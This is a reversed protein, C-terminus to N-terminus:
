YIYSLRLAKKYYHCGDNNIMISTLAALHYEKDCIMVFVKKLIGTGSYIFTKYKAFHKLRPWFGQYGPKLFQLNACCNKM